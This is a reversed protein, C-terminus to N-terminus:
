MVEVEIEEDFTIEYEGDIIVTDIKGGYSEKSVKTEFSKKFNITAWGHYEWGNQSICICIKGGKPEPKGYSVIERCHSCIDGGMKEILPYDHNCQSM